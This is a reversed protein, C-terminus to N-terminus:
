VRKPQPAKPQPAKPQPAERWELIRHAVTREHQGKLKLEGVPESVVSESLLDLTTQSVLIRSPSHAFDHPVADTSELRQATIVVGGVVTYKLRDASGITGAVVPGTHIGIRIAAEPLGAERYRSNLEELAASMALACSVASRADAAIEQPTERPIPVGFDAKIGDGFYDDVIGGADTIQRAMCELFQNSWSMLDEPSMKESHSTYGRVDVFLCTATLQHARPRGDKLFAARNRWIDQAVEQSVHRSFIQMLQRREARERGSLWQSTAGLGVTWALGPAVM